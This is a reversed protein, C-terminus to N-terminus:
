GCSGTIAGVVAVCAIIGGLLINDVRALVSVGLLVGLLAARCLDLRLHWRAYACLMVAALITALSTELGNIGIQIVRGDLAWVVLAALAAWVSVAQRVVSYLLLGAGLNLFLLFTQALRIPLERDGHAFYYVPVMLWVYLPQYGNTLHLGDARPGNGLALNRAVNLSIYSDDTLFVRDIWDIPAWAAVLRLGLGLAMLAVLWSQEARLSVVPCYETGAQLRRRTCLWLGQDDAQQRKPRLASTWAAATAGSPTHSDM